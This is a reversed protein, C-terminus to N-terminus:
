SSGWIEHFVRYFNGGIVKEILGSSHGRRALAIAISELRRPHNSALIHMVPGEGPAAIAGSLYLM